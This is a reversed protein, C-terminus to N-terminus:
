FTKLSKAKKGEKTWRSRLLGEVNEFLFFKPKIMHIFFAMDQYLHNSPLQVKDVSYSRRIGIGSFGQCPPGGAVLEVSEARFDRGFQETLEDLLRDFFGEEKVVDKIDRSNYSERLHPFHGDRNLLYTELADKNLENVYLPLVGGKGFRAIFWRM